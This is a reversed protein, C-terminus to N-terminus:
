RYLNIGGIDDWNGEDGGNEKFFEEVHRGGGVAGVAYYGDRVGGGIGLRGWGLGIGVGGGLGVVRGGGGDVGVVVEVPGCVYGRGHM